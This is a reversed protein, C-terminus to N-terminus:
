YVQFLSPYMISDYRMARVDLSQVMQDHDYHHNTVDRSWAEVM